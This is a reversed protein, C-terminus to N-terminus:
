AANRLRWKPHARRRARGYCMDDVVSEYTLNHCHRCAFIRAGAPLYLAAVCRGCKKQGGSLDSTAFGVQYELPKGGSPDSHEIWCTPERMDETNIHFRLMNEGKGVTVKARIGTRLLAQEARDFISIKRSDEILTRKRRM